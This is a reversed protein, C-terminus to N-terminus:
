LSAGPNTGPTKKARWADLQGKILAKGEVLITEQEEKTRPAPFVKLLKVQYDGGRMNRAMGVISSIRWAGDLACVAVPLPCRDLFRKFGGAHFTGLTGDTSRTGEPFIVPSWGRDRVRDAFADIARMSSSPGGTRRVLCHGDSRLMLSVLPIGRGLEAKAVFRVRDGGLFRMYLPIDLLSQHNSIVLCQPPLSDLGDSDGAYRFGLFTSFFAFLRRPCYTTAWRNARRSISSSLVYAVRTVAAVYGITLLMCFFTIATMM